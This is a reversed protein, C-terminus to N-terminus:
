RERALQVGHKLYLQGVARNDRKFQHLRCSAIRLLAGSRFSDTVFLERQYEGPRQIRREILANVRELMLADSLEINKNHRDKRAVRRHHMVLANEISWEHLARGTQSCSFSFYTAVM